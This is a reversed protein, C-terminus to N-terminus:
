DWTLHEEGRRDHRAHDGSAPRDNSHTASSEEAEVVIRDFVVRSIEVFRHVSCYGRLVSWWRDVNQSLGRHGLLDLRGNDLRRLLLPSSWALLLLRLALCRGLRSRPRDFAGLSAPRDHNTGALM